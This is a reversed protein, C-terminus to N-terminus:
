SFNQNNRTLSQIYGNWDPVQSQNDWKGFLWLVDIKRFMSATTEEHCDFREVTIKNLGASNYNEYIQIPVHVKLALDHASPIIKLKKIPQELAIAESPTIM